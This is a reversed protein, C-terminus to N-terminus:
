YRRFDGTMKADVPDSATMREAKPFGGGTKEGPEVEAQHLLRRAEEEKRVGHVTLLVGGVKLGMEYYGMVDVPLGLVKLPAQEDQALPGVAVVEGVGSLQWRSPDKGAKMAVELGVEAKGLMGIEEAKFGKALLDAVARAAHRPDRFLKVIVNPM